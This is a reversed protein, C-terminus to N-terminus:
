DLNTGRHRSELMWNGSPSSLSTILRLLKVSFSRLKSYRLPYSCTEEMSHDPVAVIYLLHHHGSSSHVGELIHIQQCIRCLDQNPPEERVIIAEKVVVGFPRWIYSDVWRDWRVRKHAVTHRLCPLLCQMLGTFKLSGKHQLYVHVLFINRSSISVWQEQLSAIVWELFGCCEQGRM